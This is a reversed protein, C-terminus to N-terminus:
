AQHVDLFGQKGFYTFPFDISTPFVWQSTHASIVDATYPGIFVNADYLMQQLQYILQRRASVDLTSAQQAYTQDFTANCYASESVVGKAACTYVEFYAGPDTQPGWAWLDMDYNLVKGDPATVATFAANNDLPEKDLAIGIKAANTQVIQFLRDGAGKEQDPFVVQYEMRHGNAIRIGDPGAAYGAADLIQNGMAIDFTPRTLGPNVWQGWSPPLLSAGFKGYGSFSVNEIQTYDVVHSLASRVRPDLLERNKPKDPNMNFGLTYGFAFAPKAVIQFGSSKLTAVQDGQVDYMDDIEHNKLALLMADLTGFFQFGFSAIHPKPGYFNDNRTFLAIADKKYSSWIFAGGSVIPTDNTFTQLDAGANGLNKSWIHEPLIPINGLLAIAAAAPASYNVVLSTPTAAEATTLNLVFQAQNSTPGSQYKVITNITWAADEATLPEGDSWKANARTTFTVTKGDGSATWSTAFDPEPKLTAQDFQVLTPYIQRFAVQPIVTFAVFPNLSDVTDITGIRLIGGEKVSASNSSGTACSTSCLALVAAVTIASARNRVAAAEM